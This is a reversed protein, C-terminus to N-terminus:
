EDAIPAAIVQALGMKHEMLAIKGIMVECRHIPMGREVFKKEYETMVLDDRIGDGHLDLSIQRMRLDMDAFSNLSFEFLSRSDTKLHIQGKENLFGLYRRLFDPHTLRRFAHRKKPWPDSFNLYVREVEGEAFVDSISQINALVLALNWNTEIERLQRAKVSARRVLEDYMDIGIFNIDPNKRSMESIFIGKGMGLEVHIPNDNGFHKQWIGKLKQPELIVLQQERELEERIGKRGRLRM